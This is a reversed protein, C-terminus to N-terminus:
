IRHKMIDRGNQYKDGDSKTIQWGLILTGNIIKGGIKGKTIYTGGPASTDCCYRSMM